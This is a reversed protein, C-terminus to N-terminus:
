WFKRVLERLLDSTGGRDTTMGPKPAMRMQPRRFQGREVYRTATIHCAALNANHSALQFEPRAHNLAVYM